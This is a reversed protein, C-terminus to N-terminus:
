ERARSDVILMSGIKCRKKQGQIQRFDMAKAWSQRAKAESIRKSDQYVTNPIALWFGVWAV